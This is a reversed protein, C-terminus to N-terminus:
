GRKVDFRFLKAPTDDLVIKREALDPLWVNLQMRARSYDAIKEFQTHPWDSGWILRDVGFSKRLLPMAASTITEGMSGPGVRYMGSLKLWVRRSAAAISLLSRFGPDNVGLQQDPLGFHDIVVNVHTKLLAEVIAPLDRAARQLEVQWGLDAVNKLLSPWPDSKFDPIPAGILNLRIGVIGEKDLIVLTEKDVNPQVVAIGRLRKPQKKLAELLFGNDTGLFSPQILVGNSIGNTNLNYLYADLPADYDPVYRRTEALKLGRMFIHAHTDVATIST